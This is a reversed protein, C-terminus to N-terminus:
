FEAILDQLEADPRHLDFYTMSHRNSHMVFRM